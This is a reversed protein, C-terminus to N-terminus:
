FFKSQDRIFNGKILFCYKIKLNLDEKHEWIQMKAQIEAKEKNHPRITLKPLIHEFPKLPIMQICTLSPSYWYFDSIHIQKLSEM